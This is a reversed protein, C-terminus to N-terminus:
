PRFRAFQDCANRVIRGETRDDHEAAAPGRDLDDAVLRERQRREIELERAPQDPAGAHRAHELGVAVNRGRVHIGHREQQDLQGLQRRIQGLQALEIEIGHQGVLVAEDGDIGADRHSGDLRREPWGRKAM